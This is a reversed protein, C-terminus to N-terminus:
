NSVEHESYLSKAVIDLLNKTQAQFEFAEAKPAANSYPRRLPVYARESPIYCTASLSARRARVLQHLRQSLHRRFMSLLM